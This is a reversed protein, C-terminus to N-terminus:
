RSGGNVETRIQLLQARIRQEAEDLENSKRDITDICDQIAKLIRQRDDSTLGSHADKM